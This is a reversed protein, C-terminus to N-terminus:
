KRLSMKTLILGSPALVLLGILSLILLPIDMWNEELTFDISSQGDNGSNDFIFTYLDDAPDIVFSYSRDVYIDELHQTNFFYATFNIGEGEVEMAGTLASKSLIRTHHYREQTEGAELIFFTDIVIEARMASNFSLLFVSTGLLLLLIGMVMM